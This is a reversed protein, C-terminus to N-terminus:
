KKEGFLCSPAVANGAVVTPSPLHGEEVREVDEIGGDEGPKLAPYKSTKRCWGYWVPLRRGKVFKFQQDYHRCDKCKITNSM